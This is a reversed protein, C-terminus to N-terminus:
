HEELPTRSGEEYKHFKLLGKPLAGYNLGAEELLAAVVAKYNGEGMLGPIDKGTMRRCAVNLDDYFAYKDIGEFFAQEFKTTPREYDAGLFEFLNKFMRSAAGSAPVFKVITKDTNKYADWAALYAEQEDTAPALIGKEVSAAADLKLYPFGKEFCALQEAIQAESIGKKALLEKDQPTIM